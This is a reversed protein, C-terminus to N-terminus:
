IINYFIKVCEFDLTTNSAMFNATFECFLNWTKTDSDDGSLLPYNQPMINM